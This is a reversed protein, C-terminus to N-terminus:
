EGGGARSPHTMAAKLSQAHEVLLLAEREAREYEAQMDATRRVSWAPSGPYNLELFLRCALWYAVDPSMVLSGAHVTRPQGLDSHVVPEASMGREHVVALHGLEYMPRRLVPQIAGNRWRRVEETLSHIEGAIGDTLDISAWQDLSDLQADILRKDSM